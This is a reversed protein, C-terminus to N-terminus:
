PSVSVLPLDFINETLCAALINTLVNKKNHSVSEFETEPARKGCTRKKM